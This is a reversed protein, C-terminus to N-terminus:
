APGVNCEGYPRVYLGSFGLVGPAVLDGLRQLVNVRKARDAQTPTASQAPLRNWSCSHLLSRCRRCFVISMLISPLKPANDPVHALLLVDLHCRWSLCLRACLIVKLLDAFARGLSAAAADSWRREQQFREQAEACMADGERAVSGLEANNEDDSSESANRRRGKRGRQSRGSRQQAPTQPISGVESPVSAAETAKPEASAAHQERDPQVNMEDSPFVTPVTGIEQQGAAAVSLVSDLWRSAPAGCVSAM